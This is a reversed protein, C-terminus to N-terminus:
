RKTFSEMMANDYPNGRRYMIAGGNVSLIESSLSYRISIYCDKGAFETLIGAKEFDTM